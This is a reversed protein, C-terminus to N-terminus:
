FSVTLQIKAALNDSVAPLANPGYRYFVGAGIGYYLINVYKFRLLNNLMLGRRVPWALGALAQTNV